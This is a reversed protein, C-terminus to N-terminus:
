HLDPRDRHIETETRGKAARGGVGVFAQDEIRHETVRREERTAVFNLCGPAKGVRNEFAPLLKVRREVGVFGTAPARSLGVVEDGAVTPVPPAPAPQLFLRKTLSLVM